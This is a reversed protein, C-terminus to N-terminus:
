RQPQQAPRQQQQAPRQQPQAPRQQQQQQQAPALSVRPLEKNLRAIVEDTLDLRRDAILIQERRFVMVINKERAIADVIKLATNEIQRAAANAAEAIPKAKEQMQRDMDQLQQEFARRREAYAEPSLVLRQRELEDRGQRIQNQLATAEPLQKAREAEIQERLRKSADAKELVARTDVVGFGFVVARPQADQSEQPRQAPARQAQQAAASGIGAMVGGVIVAAGLLMGALGTMCRVAATM